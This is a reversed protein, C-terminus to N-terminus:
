HHPSAAQPNTTAQRASFLILSSRVGDVVAQASIRAAAPMASIEQSFESAATKGNFSHLWEPNQLATSVEAPDRLRQLRLGCVADNTGVALVFEIAGFEGKVRGTLIAGLSIQGSFVPHFRFANEDGTLPRGLQAALEVRQGSLIRTMTEYHTASPFFLKLDSDPERWPCMPSSQPPLNKTQFPLESIQSSENIRWGIVALLLLGGSFIVTRPSMETASAPPKSKSIAM